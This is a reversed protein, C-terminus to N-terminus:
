RGTFETEAEDADALRDRGVAKPSGGSAGLSDQVGELGEGLRRELVALQEENGEIRSELRRMWARAAILEAQRAGGALRGVRTELDRVRDAERAVRLEMARHATRLSDIQRLLGITWQRERSENWVGLGLVLGAGLALLVGLRSVRGRLRDLRTEMAETSGQSM